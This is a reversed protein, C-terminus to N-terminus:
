PGPALLGGVGASGAGLLGYMARVEQPSLNPSMPIAQNMTASAAQARTIPGLLGQAVGSVGSMGPLRAMQGFLAGGVNSGRSVASAAPDSNIYASVRAVREIQEIEQPSFFAALKERGIQRIASQFSDPRIMKDGAANNGFAGQYLRSALQRRAEEFEPAPLENALRRVDSAKANIINDRIFTDGVRELAVKNNATAAAELGPVADLRAFRKAAAQRAPTFPDAPGEASTIARKVADRLPGLSANQGDDLANIQKLLKDAAEFDFVKRQTMSDSDILGYSQLNKIIPPPVSHKYGAATGFDDIISGIDSALGPMPVDTARDGGARAAQYLKTVGQREVDDAAKLAEVMRRGAIVPDAAKPGGLSAVRDTLARNQVQLTDRIPNGSLGIDDVGRLNMMQSYAAPDRTIQPQMYPVGLAKFDQQRILATADPRKGDKFAQLVKDRIERKMAEPIQADDVGAERFAQAIAVDTELSARAGVVDKPLLRTQLAKLKPAVVDFVKGTIPAFVAGGAAGVLGQGAKQMGFSTESTDTVPQAMGGILGTVGGVAARGATTVAAPARAAIAANVPSVVNGLLRAGDFGTQGVAARAGQYERESDTIGQDVRQAESDFFRSVPNPTLGGLSTLASLGRPLMQAGADIGDKMGKVVRAPGSALMKQGFTAPTPTSAAIKESAMRILEIDSAGEPAQIEVTQGDPSRVKYTRM